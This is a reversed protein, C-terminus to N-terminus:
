GSSTASEPTVRPDQGLHTALLAFLEPEHEAFANPRVFFTEVAVAYFEAPNTGGYRDLVPHPEDQMRDWIDTCLDIWRQRVAADAFVPTGDMSGDRQDLQHAFEHLLVNGSRQHFLLQRRVASWSVLVPGVGHAEGIITTEEDTYLGSVQSPRPGSRVMQNPHVIISTVHDWSEVGDPLELSLLAAHGAVAVRMADTLEFGKAAEWRFGDAIAVTDLLLRERQAPSLHAAHPTWQPLLTRAALPSLPTSRRRRGFRV